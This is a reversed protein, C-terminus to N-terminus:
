VDNRQQVLGEFGVADEDVLSVLGWVVVPRTLASCTCVYAGICVAEQYAYRSGELGQEEISTRSELKEGGQLCQLTSWSLIFRIFTSSKSNQPTNNCSSSQSAESSTAM